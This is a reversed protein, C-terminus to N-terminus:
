LASFSSFNHQCGSLVVSGAFALLQDTGISQRQTALPWSFALCIAMLGSQAMLHTGTEFTLMHHFLLHTGHLPDQNKSWM